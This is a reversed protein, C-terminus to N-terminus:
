EISIPVQVVTEGGSVSSHVFFFLAHLGKQNSPLEVLAHFMDNSGPVASGLFLGGTDRNDLFIDIKDIGTGQMAADDFALGEITYAGARITSGPSPNGVDLMVTTSSSPMTTTTSPTTTTTSPTTVATSPTTTTQSGSAPTCTEMMSPIAGNASTQGAVSPDEGIAVPVAIIIEQGTVSSHAYGFLDHGGTLKPLNVITQFSGEGFPGAVAGPVAM